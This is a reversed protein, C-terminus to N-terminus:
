VIQGAERNIGHRVEAESTSSFEVTRLIAQEDGIYNAGPGHGHGVWIKTPPQVSELKDLPM